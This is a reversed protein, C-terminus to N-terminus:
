PRQVTANPVKSMPSFRFDLGSAGADLAVGRVTRAMVAVARRETGDDFGGEVTAIGDEV